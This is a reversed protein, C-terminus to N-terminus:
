KFTKAKYYKIRWVTILYVQIVDLQFTKNLVEKIIQQYSFM